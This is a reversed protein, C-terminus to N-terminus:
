GGIEQLQVPKLKLKLIRQGQDKGVTKLNGLLQFGLGDITDKFHRSNDRNKRTKYTSTKSEILMSSELRILEKKHYNKKSQDCRGIRGGFHQSKVLAIGCNKLNTSKFLDAVAKTTMPICPYKNIRPFKGKYKKFINRSQTVVRSQGFDINGTLNQITLPKEEEDELTAQLVRAREEICTKGKSSKRVTKSIVRFSWYKNDSRSDRDKPKQSESKDPSDPAVKPREGQSPQLQQEEQPQYKRVPKSRM